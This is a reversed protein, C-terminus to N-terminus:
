KLPQSLSSVPMYMHLICASPSTEFKCTISHFISQRQKRSGISVLSIYIGSYEMILVHISTVYRPQLSILWKCEAMTNLVRFVRISVSYQVLSYELFVKTVNVQRIRKRGLLATALSRRAYGLKARSLQRRLLCFNGRRRKRERKSKMEQKTALKWRAVWEISAVM